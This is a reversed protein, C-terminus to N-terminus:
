GTGTQHTSAAWAPSFAFDLTFLLSRSRCTAWLNCKRSCFWIITQSFLWRPGLTIPYFHVKEPLFQVLTLEPILMSIPHHNLFALKKMKYPPFSPPILSKGSIVLLNRALTAGSTIFPVTDQSPVLGDRSKNKAVDSQLPLRWRWSWLILRRHAQWCALM